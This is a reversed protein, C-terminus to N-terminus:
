KFDEKYLKLTGCKKCCGHITITPKGCKKCLLLQKEPKVYPHGLQEELACQNCKGYLSIFKKEGVFSCNKRCKPCTILIRM